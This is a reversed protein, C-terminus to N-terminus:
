RGSQGRFMVACVRRSSLLVLGGALLGIGLLVLRLPYPAGTTAAGAGPSGVLFVSALAVVSTLAAGARMVRTEYRM